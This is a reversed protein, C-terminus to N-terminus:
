CALDFKYEHKEVNHFKNSSANENEKNMEHLADIAAFMNVLLDEKTEGYALAKPFEQFFGSYTGTHEDYVMVATLRLKQTEM